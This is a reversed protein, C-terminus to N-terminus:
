PKALHLLTAPLSIRSYKSNRLYLDVNKIEESVIFGRNSYIGDYSIKTVNITKKKNKNERAIEVKCGLEIFSFLITREFVTDAGNLLGESFFKDTPASLVLVSCLNNQPNFPSHTQAARIAKRKDFTIMVTDELFHGEFFVRSQVVYPINAM